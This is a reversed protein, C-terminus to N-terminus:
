KCNAQYLGARRPGVSIKMSTMLMTKESFDFLYTELARPYAAVITAADASFETAIVTAGDAKASRTGAADSIFIDFDSEDRVLQFNGGSIGDDFTGQGIVFITGKPSM